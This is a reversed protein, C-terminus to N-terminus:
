QSEEQDDDENDGILSGNEASMRHLGPRPYGDHSIQDITKQEIIRYYRRVALLFPDAVPTKKYLEAEEYQRIVSAIM